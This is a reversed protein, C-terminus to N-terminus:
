QKVFHYTITGKQRDPADPSENFRSREAADIAVRRLAEDDASRSPIVTAKQVTGRPTVLIEVTVTGGRECKFVPIPLHRAFRGPLNYSVSSEGAYFTSRLSDLERERRDHEHRLSDERYRADRRPQYRGGTGHDPLADLAERIYEEVRTDSSPAAKSTANENVAMSRLLREVEEDSTKRRIEERHEREEERLRIEEKDPTDMTIEMELHVQMRSIQMCLFLIALLLHFIVTGMIGRRHLILKEKLTM